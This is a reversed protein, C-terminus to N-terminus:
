RRLVQLTMLFEHVLGLGERALDAALLKRELPVKTSVLENMEILVDSCGFDFLILSELANLTFADHSTLLLENAVDQFLVARVRIVWFNNRARNTVFDTLVVSPHLNVLSAEM